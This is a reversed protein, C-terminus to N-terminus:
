SFWVYRMDAESKCLAAKGGHQQKCEMVLLQVEYQLATHLTMVALQKKSSSSAHLRMLLLDGCAVCAAPSVLRCVCCSSLVRSSFSGGLLMCHNLTHSCWRHAPWPRVQMRLGCCVQLQISSSRFMLTLLVTLHGGHVAAHETSKVTHKCGWAPLSWDHQASLASWVESLVVLLCRFVTLLDVFFVLMLCLCVPM